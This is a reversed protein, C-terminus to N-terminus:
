SYYQPHSLLHRMWLIQLIYRRSQINYPLFVWTISQTTSALGALDSFQAAWFVDMPPGGM